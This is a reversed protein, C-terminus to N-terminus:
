IHAIHLTPVQLFIDIEHWVFSDEKVAPVGVSTCDGLVDM